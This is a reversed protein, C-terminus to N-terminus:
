FLLSNGLKCSYNNFIYRKLGRLTLISLQSYCYIISDRNDGVVSVLGIKLDNMTLFDGM